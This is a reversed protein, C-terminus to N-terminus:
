RIGIYIGIDLAGQREARERVGALESDKLGSTMNAQLGTGLAAMQTSARAAADRDFGLQALASDYARQSGTAQIDGLNQQTNKQNEMQELVARSGGFAGAKTANSALRNSQLDGEKRAERLAIDTVGQQFPSMFPRIHTLSVFVTLFTHTHTNHARTGTM